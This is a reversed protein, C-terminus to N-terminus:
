KKDVSYIGSKPPVYVFKPFMQGFFRGKRINVFGGVPEIHIPRPTLRQVEARLREIEDAAEWICIWDKPNHETSNNLARLRTVIDDTM